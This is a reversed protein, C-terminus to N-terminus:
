EQEWWRRKSLRGRLEKLNVYEEVREDLTDRRECKSSFYFPKEFVLEGHMAMSLFYRLVCLARGKKGLRKVLRMTPDLFLPDSGAMLYTLCSYERVGLKHLDSLNKQLRFNKERVAERRFLLRKEEFSLCSLVAFEQTETLSYPYFGLEVARRRILTRYVVYGRKLISNETFTALRLDVLDNPLNHSYKLLHPDCEVKEEYDDQQM